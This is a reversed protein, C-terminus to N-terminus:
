AKASALNSQISAKTSESLLNQGLWIWSAGFMLSMITFSDFIGLSDWVEYRDLGFGAIMLSAVLTVIIPVLYMGLTTFTFLIMVWKPLAKSSLIAIGLLALGISMSLFGFWTHSLWHWIPPSPSWWGDFNSPVIYRYLVQLWSSFLTNMITLVLGVSALMFGITGLRGPTGWIRAYLGVLGVLFLALPLALLSTNLYSSITDIVHEVEFSFPGYVSHIRIIYDLYPLLILAMWLVGGVTGSWGGWYLLRPTWVARSISWRGFVTDLQIWESDATVRLWVDRPEVFQVRRVKRHEM